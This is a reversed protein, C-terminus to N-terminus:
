PPSPWTVAPPCRVSRRPMGPWSRRRIWTPPRRRSGRWGRPSTTSNPRSNPWRPSRRGIAEMQELGATLEEQAAQLEQRNREIEALGDALDAQDQERQDETAFPDVVDTVQDFGELDDLATSVQERQSVTFQSGDGTAFVVTAGTASVDLEEQLEENVRETETGPISFQDQLTGGFAFFSAIAIALLVFWAAIVRGAKRASWQGIRHLLKAM